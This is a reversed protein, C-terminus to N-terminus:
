KNISLAFYESESPNLKVYKGDESFKFFENGQSIIDMETDNFLMGFAM